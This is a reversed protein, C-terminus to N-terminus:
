EKLTILYADLRDLRSEWIRRQKELWHEAVRLKEPVLSYTRVRGRKESKLLGVNELIDLHKLVSPLKMPLPEAIESMSASGRCLREIVALRTPDALARFTPDLVPAWDTSSPNSATTIPM